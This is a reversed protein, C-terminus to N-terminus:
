LLKVIFELCLSLSNTTSEFLFLYYTVVYIKNHFKQLFTISNNNNNNNNYWFWLDRPEHAVLKLLLHETFFFFIDTVWDTDFHSVLVHFVLSHSVIVFSLYFFPLFYSPRDSRSAETGFYRCDCAKDEWSASNQTIKKFFSKM